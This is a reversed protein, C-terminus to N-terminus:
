RRLEQADAPMEALCRRADDALPGYAMLKLYRRLCLRAAAPDNTKEYAQALNFYAPGFYLNCRLANRFATMAAGPNEVLLSM